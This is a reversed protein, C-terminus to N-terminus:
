STKLNNRFIGGTATLESSYSVEDEDYALM